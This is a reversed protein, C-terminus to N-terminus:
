DRYNRPNSICIILIAPISGTLKKEFKGDYESGRRVCIFLYVVDMRAFMVKVQFDYSLSKQARFWDM